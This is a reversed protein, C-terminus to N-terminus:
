IAGCRRRPGRKGPSREAKLRASDARDPGSTGSGAQLRRRPCREPSRRPAARLPREEEGPAAREGGEAAPPPDTVRLQCLHPAGKLSAGGLSVRVCPSCAAMKPLPLCLAAAARGGARRCGEGSGCGGGGGARGAGGPKGEGAGSERRPQAM